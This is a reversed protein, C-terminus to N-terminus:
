ANLLDFNEHNGDVFLTTFPKDNLWKQWYRMEKDDAWTIGADGCIIVYDEKDMGIQEPFIETNFRRFDTHCDGTIYIQGAM